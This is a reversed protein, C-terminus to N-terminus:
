NRMIQQEFRDSVVGVLPPDQEVDCPPELRRHLHWVPGEGCPLLSGRLTGWHRRWRLPCDRTPDGETDADSPEHTRERIPIHHRITINEPGVLVDPGGLQNRVNSQSNKRQRCHNLSSTILRRRLAIASDPTFGGVIISCRSTVPLLGTHM